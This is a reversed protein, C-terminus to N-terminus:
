VKARGKPSSDGCTVSLACATLGTTLAESAILFEGAVEFLEGRPPATAGYPAVSLTEGLTM